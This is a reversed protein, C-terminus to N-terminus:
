PVGNACFHCLSHKHACVLPMESKRFLTRSEKMVFPNKRIKPPNKKYVFPNKGLTYSIEQSHFAGRACLSHKHVYVDNKKMKQAFPTTAM